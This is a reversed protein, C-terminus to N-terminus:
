SGGVLSNLRALSRGVFDARNGDGALQYNELADELWRQSQTLDRRAAYVHALGEQARAKEELNRTRIGLRLAQRYRVEAEAMWGLRVYIDGLLRHVVAAKTDQGLNELPDIAALYAGPELSGLRTMLYDALMVARATAAAELEEIAAIEKDVTVRQGPTLLKLGLEYVVTPPIDETVVVLRYRIGPELAAGQYLIQTDQVVQQWVVENGRALWVRYSEAGSVASWRLLLEEEVLATEYSFEGRLLDLFIREKGRADRNRDSKPCITGLGSPVGVSVRKLKRERDGCRVKVVAGESPLLEDGPNIEQWQFVPLYAEEGKRKIQAEGQLVEIRNPEAKVRRPIGALLLGLILALFVWGGLADQQSGTTKRARHQAM